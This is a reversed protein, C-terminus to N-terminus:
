IVRLPEESKVFRGLRRAAILSSAFDNYVAGLREEFRKWDDNKVLTQVMHSFRTRRQEDLALSVIEKAISEPAFDQLLVGHVDDHYGDLGCNKSIIMPCGCSAAELAALSLGEAYSPMLFIDTSGLLERMEGRTRHGLKLVVNKQGGIASQAFDNWKKSLIPGIVEICLTLGSNRQNLEACAVAIATLTPAMGKRFSNARVAIRIRNSGRVRESPRFDKLNVGYPIIVVKGSTRKRASEAVFESPCIVLQAKSLVWDNNRESKSFGWESEGINWRKAEIALLSRIEPGSNLIQESVLVAGADYMAVNSLPLYDQLTHFIDPSSAGSKIKKAYLSDFVRPFLGKAVLRAVLMPLQPGISEFAIGDNNKYEYYSLVEAIRPRIRRVSDLTRGSLKIPVVTCLDVNARAIGAISHSFHHRLPHAATVKFRGLQMATQYM